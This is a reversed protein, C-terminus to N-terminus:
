NDTTAKKTVVVFGKDMIMNGGVMVEGKVTLLGEGFKYDESVNVEYDGFLGLKYAYPDGYIMTKIRAAGTTASGTLATIDSCVVYPVSLGGDKIIGTNPNAGDPIIEYVAKKENTGRVDGFAILDTKNLFLKAGSGIVNEDGGYAFVIKRLTTADIVADKAVFLTDYLEEPVNETNVANYIGYAQTSGNGKVIWAVLKKRLAILAGKRVKEEYLLPTQKKLNKGVYTLVDLPFPSIAVTRFVPDSPTPATGYATNEQASQWSKMYSEKHVGVGTLDDVFVMDVISSVINFPETIGGVSTPKALTGSSLLVSRTEAAGISMRGTEALKKAREEIDATNKRQEQGNTNSIVVGPINGNVADTRENGNGSQNQDQNASEDPISDYKQRLENIETDLANIQEQISRVEELSESAKGKARLEDRAKEKKTILDLLWKKM